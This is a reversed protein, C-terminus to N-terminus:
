KSPAAAVVTTEVVLSLEDDLEESEVAEVELEEESEALEEEDLELELLAEDDLELADEVPVVTSM